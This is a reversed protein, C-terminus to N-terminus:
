MGAPRGPDGPPVVDFGLLRWARMVSSASDREIQIWPSAKKTEFRGTIVAGSKKIEGRAQQLRDWAQCLTDLLVAAPADIEVEDFIRQWLAKAERSLDKPPKPQTQKV